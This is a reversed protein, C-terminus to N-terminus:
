IRCGVVGVSILFVFLHFLAALLAYIGYFIFIPALQTKPDCPQGRRAAVACLYSPKSTMWKEVVAESNEPLLDNWKPHRKAQERAIADAMAWNWNSYGGYLLAVYIVGGSIAVGLIALCGAKFPETVSLPNVRLLNTVIYWIIAASFGLFLSEVTVMTNKDSAGVGGFYKWLDLAQPESWQASEDADCSPNQTTPKQM